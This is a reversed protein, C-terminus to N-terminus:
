SDAPTWLQVNGSSLGPRPVAGHVELSREFEIAAVDSADFMIQEARVLQALRFKQALGHKRIHGELYTVGLGIPTEWFDDRSNYQKADRFDAENFHGGILDLSNSPAISDNSWDLARVSVWLMRMSSAVKAATQARQLDAGGTDFNRMRHWYMAAQGGFTQNDSLRYSKLKDAQHNGFKSVVHGYEEDLWKSLIDPANM